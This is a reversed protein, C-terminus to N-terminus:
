SPSVAAVEELFRFTARACQDWSYRKSLDHARSALQFRLSADDALRRITAAIDAVDGPDFYVGADGVIEPMPGSRACAIPLGSSMAEVLINSMNECSSPFVFVDCQRYCRHVEDFRVKGLYRVSCGDREMNDIARKLRDVAGSGDSPGVLTLEIPIERRLIGVAAVLNLHNKYQSVASVYLLRLPRHAGFVSWPPQPRPEMRFREGVGHPIVAIRRPGRPLARCVERRAYETLFIVGDANVFNRSQVRRLLELRLRRPSMGNRRRQVDDFPLMNRSMVVRPRAAQTTVGGPAFLLNVNRTLCPLRTHQWIIRQCLGRDLMPEHCSELWPRAPLGDLTDRSGWVVIHDIGGLNGDGHRLLETLHTRGGGARLNSADIGIKM